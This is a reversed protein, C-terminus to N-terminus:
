KEDHVLEIFRFKGEHRKIKGQKELQELHYNVVSTSSIFCAEGLERISVPSILKEQKKLYEIMRKRVEIGNKNPKKNM